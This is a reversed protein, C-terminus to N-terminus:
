PTRPTQVTIAVTRCYYRGEPVDNDYPLRSAGVGVCGDINAGPRTQVIFAKVADARNQSLTKNHDAEGLRDTSGVISIRSQPRVAERVFRQMMDKNVPTIDARDFDFVILSLRSLEYTNQSKRIPFRCWAEVVSGDDQTVRVRGQLSDSPQIERGLAIMVSSDVAVPVRDPFPAAGQKTAIVRDGRMVDITWRVARERRLVQVSFDQERQLPSYELFREHVVPALLSPTNSGIEVRRNEERGERYEDNSVIAPVDVSGTRIRQDDIGWRERLYKKVAV